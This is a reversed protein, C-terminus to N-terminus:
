TKSLNPNQHNVQLRTQHTTLGSSKCILSSLSTPSSLTENSLRGSEVPETMISSEPICSPHYPLLTDSSISEMRKSNRNETNSCLSQLMSWATGCSSGIETLRSRKLLHPRDMFYSLTGESNSLMKQTTPCRTFTPSCMTSTSPMGASCTSGSQKPFSPSLDTVTSCHRDHMSLTGLSIRSCLTPKRYLHPYNRHQTSTQSKSNTGHCSVSTSTLEKRTSMTRMKQHLRGRDSLRGLLSPMVQQSVTPMIKSTPCPSQSASTSVMSGESMVKKTANSITSCTSIHNMPLYSSTKTPNMEHSQNSSSSQHRLNQSEDLESIRSLVPVNTSSTKNTKPCSHQVPQPSVRDQLVVRHRKVMRHCLLLNHCLYIQPNSPHSLSVSLFCVSTYLVSPLCLCSFLSWLEGLICSVSPSSRERVQTLSLICAVTLGLLVCCLDRFM